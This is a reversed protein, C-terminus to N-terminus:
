SAIAAAYLQKPGHVGIVIMKEIDATRSPGTILAVRNSSFREAGVAAIVDALTPLIREAAVFIFNAPPLITIASPRRGGAVVCFTGTSAIAYDAEIVGLDCAALKARLAIRGDDDRFGTRFTEVGVAGLVQELEASDVTVGDALAISKLSLDRALQVIREDLGDAGSLGSFQGGVRELERGFQAVLESQRLAPEAEPRPAFGNAEHLPHGPQRTLAARVDGVVKQLDGM